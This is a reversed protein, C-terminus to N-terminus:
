GNACESIEAMTPLRPYSEAACRALEGSYATLVKERPFIPLEATCSRTKQALYTPNIVMDNVILSSPSQHKCRLQPHRFGVLM